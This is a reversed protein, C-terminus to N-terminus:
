RTMWWSTIILSGLVIIFALTSQLSELQSRLKVVESVWEVMENDKRCMVCYHSGDEDLALM